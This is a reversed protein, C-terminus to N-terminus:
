VHFAPVQLGEQLLVKPPDAVHQKSGWSRAIRREVERRSGRLSLDTYIITTPVCSFRAITPGHSAMDVAVNWPAEFIHVRM